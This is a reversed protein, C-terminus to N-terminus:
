GNISGFASISIPSISFGCAMAALSNALDEVRKLIAPKM